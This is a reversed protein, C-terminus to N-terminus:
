MLCWPLLAWHTPSTCYLPDKECTIVPLIRMSCWWLRGSSIVLRNYMDLWLLYSECWQKDAQPAILVEYIVGIFLHQWHYSVLMVANIRLLWWQWSFMRNKKWQQADCLDSSGMYSKLIVQCICFPKFYVHTIWTPFTGRVGVINTSNEAATSAGCSFCIHQQM